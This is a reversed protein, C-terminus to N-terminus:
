SNRRTYEGNWASSPEEEWEEEVYPERYPEPEAESDGFIGQMLAMVLAFVFMAIVLYGFYKCVAAEQKPDVEVQGGCQTCVAPVLRTGPTETTSM